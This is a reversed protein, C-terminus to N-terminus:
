KTNYIQEYFAKQVSDDSQCVVSVDIGFVLPFGGVNHERSMHLVDTNSNGKEKEKKEGGKLMYKYSFGVKSEPHVSLFCTSNGFKRMGWFFGGVKAINTNAGISQSVGLNSISLAYETKASLGRGINYGSGISVGRNDPSLYLTRHEIESSNEYMKLQARIHGEIELKSNSVENKDDENKKHILDQINNDITKDIKFNVAKNDGTIDISAQAGMGNVGMKKSSFFTGIGMVSGEWKAHEQSNPLFPSITIDSKIINLANYGAKIQWNKLNLFLDKLSDNKEKLTHVTFVKGDESITMYKSTDYDYMYYKHQTSDYNLYPFNNGTEKAVVHIISNMKDEGLRESLEKWREKGDLIPKANKREPLEITIINTSPVRKGWEEWPIADAHMTAWPIAHHNIEGDTTFLGRSRLSSIRHNSQVPKNSSSFNNSIEKRMLNSSSHTRDLIDAGEHTRWHAENSLMETRRGERMYEATRVANYHEQRRRQEEEQRIRERERELEKEQAIQENLNKLWEQHEAERQRKRDSEPRSRKQKSSSRPPEQVYTIGGVRQQNPIENQNQTKQKNPIKSELWSSLRQDLNDLSKELKQQQNRYFENDRERRLREQEAIYADKEAIEANTSLGLPNQQSFAQFSFSCIFLALIIIRM